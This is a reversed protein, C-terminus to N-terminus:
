DVQCTEHTGLINYLVERGGKFDIFLQHVAKNYVWKKRLYRVFAFFKILLRDTIDYVWM